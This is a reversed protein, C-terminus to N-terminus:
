GTRRVDEEPQELLEVFLARYHVMAQRLNETSAKGQENALSIAHAARYNEVVHPHDVSVDAARQDFDEMPYGRERMVETVLHDGERTAQGPSDVFRAQADRWREAYRQRVAPDLPRIDLQERRKERDTLESEAQRRGSINVTREYGPGFSERLRKSTRQRSFSWVVVGALVVIAVAILIWAWLPM